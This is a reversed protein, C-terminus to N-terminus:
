FRKPLAYIKADLSKGTFSNILMRLDSILRKKGSKQISASLPNITIPQEFVDTVCGQGILDNIANQM